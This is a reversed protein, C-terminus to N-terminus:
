RSPSGSTGRWWYQADGHLNEVVQSQSEFNQSYELM